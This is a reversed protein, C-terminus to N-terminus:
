THNHLTAVSPHAGGTQETKDHQFPHKVDRGSPRAAVNTHCRRPLMSVHLLARLSHWRPCGISTDRNDSQLLKGCLRQVPGWKALTDICSWYELLVNRDVVVRERRFVVVVVMLICAVRM